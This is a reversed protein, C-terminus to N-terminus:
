DLGGFGMLRFKGVNRWCSPRGLCASLCQSLETEPAGLGQAFLNELVSLAWFVFFEGCGDFYSQIIEFDDFGM